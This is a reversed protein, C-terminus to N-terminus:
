VKGNEDISQIKCNINTVDVTEAYAKQNTDNQGGYEVKNFGLKNGYETIL